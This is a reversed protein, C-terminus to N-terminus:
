TLDDAIARFEKRLDNNALMAIGDTNTALLRLSENRMHLNQQDRIVDVNESIPADFAALGRPDIPYFSVNARNAEGFLDRFYEADDRLSLEMQDREGETRDPNDPDSPSRKGLTGGRGVAIPAQGGPVPDSSGPRRQAIAENPRYLLWGDTVAVVATRGDRL